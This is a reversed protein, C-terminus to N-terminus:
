VVVHVFREAILESMEERLVVADVYFQRFRTWGRKWEFEGQEDDNWPFSSLMLGTVDEGFSNLFQGSKNRRYMIPQPEALEEPTRKHRV